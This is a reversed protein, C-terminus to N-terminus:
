KRIRALLIVLIAAICIIGETIPFSLWIGPLEFLRSLILAMPIILIFGRCLSIFHAPLPKETSTFFMSLIINMGAFPCALFYLCLGQTAISQLTLNHESNFIRTINQAGFYIVTYILVSFFLCTVVGFKLYTHVEEM